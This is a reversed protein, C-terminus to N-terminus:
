SYSHDDYEKIQAAVVFVISGVQGQDVVMLKDGEEVLDFRAIWEGETKDTNCVNDLKDLLDVESLQACV